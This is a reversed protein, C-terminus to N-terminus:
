KLPAVDAGIISSVFSLSKLLSFTLRREYKEIKCFYSHPVNVIIALERMNLGCKNRMERIAIGIAEDIPYYFSRKRM